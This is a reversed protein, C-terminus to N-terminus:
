QYFYISYQSLYRSNTDMNAFIEDAVDRQAKSLKPEMKKMMGSVFTKLSSGSVQAPLGALSVKQFGQDVKTQAPTKVSAPTAGMRKKLAEIEAPTLKGSMAKKQLELAMAKAEEPTIPKQASAYQVVLISLFFFLVTHIKILSNKM